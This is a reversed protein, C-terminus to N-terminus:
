GHKAGGGTQGSLESAFRRILASQREPRAQNKLDEALQRVAQDVLEGRIQAAARREEVEKREQIEQALQDLAARKMEEINERDQDAMTRAQAEIRAVEEDLGNVKCQARERRHMAESEAHEARSIKRRVADVQEDLFALLPKRGFWVILFVVAAFNYVEFIGDYIARRRMEAQFQPRATYEDMFAVAAPLQDLPPDLGPNQEYAQAVLDMDPRQLYRAYGQSKKIQIYRDHDAAYEDLYGTSMGPPGWLVNVAIAIVMYVAFFIAFFRGASM